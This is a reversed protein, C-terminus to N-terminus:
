SEDAIGVLKLSDRWLRAEEERNYTHRVYGDGFAQGDDEGRTSEECDQLYRGGKHEWEKGVAAMVTTAAGQEASKLVKVFAENSMIYDVFEPGVHRGINSNIGGPHVSTAHLGKSGYRREVENATYINALKSNGYAQEWTYGGRQFSYNDSELLQTTRHASSSVFVARSSFEPTASGLLADKLLQLLLFHSLHNTAFHIEHSDETLKLKSVGMMGANGIFINVKRSSLSLITAAASRVSSLSANDMDILSVQGSELVDALAIKATDRDRVTLFMTAGTAYLARATELGIGSTAGTLVIVKGSLM